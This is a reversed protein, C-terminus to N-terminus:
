IFPMYLVGDFTYFSYFFMHEFNVSFVFHVVALTATYIQLLILINLDYVTYFHFM